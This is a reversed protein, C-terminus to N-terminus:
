KTNKSIRHRKIIEREQFLDLLKVNFSNAIKTIFDIRSDRKANELESVYTSSTDLVEALKEQTWGNQLRYYTINNALIKRGKLIDKKM